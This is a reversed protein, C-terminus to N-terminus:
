MTTKYMFTDPIRFVPFRFRSTRLSYNQFSFGTSDEFHTEFRLIWIPIESEAPFLTKRLYVTGCQSNQQYCKRSKLGFGHGFHDVCQSEIEESSLHERFTEHINKSILICGKHCARTKIVTPIARQARQDSFWGETSWIM